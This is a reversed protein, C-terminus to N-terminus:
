FSPDVYTSRHGFYVGNGRTKNLRGTKPNRVVNIWQDNELRFLYMIGSPDTEYSYDQMETFYGRDDTRKARDERVMVLPGKETQEVVTVTGAHRDSWWTITAGDGVAPVHKTTCHTMVHNILSGTESGLKM